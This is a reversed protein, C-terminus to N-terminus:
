NQIDGIEFTQYSIEWGDYDTDYQLSSIIEVFKDSENSYAVDNKYMQTPDSYKLKVTLPLMVDTHALISGLTNPTISEDYNLPPIGLKKLFDGFDNCAKNFNRGRRNYTNSLNILSQLSSMFKTLREEFQITNTDM